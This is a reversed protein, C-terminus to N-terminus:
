PELHKLNPTTPQQSLTTPTVQARSRLCNAIKGLVRGIDSDLDRAPLLRLLSIVAASAAPRVTGGKGENDEVVTLTELLPLVDVRLTTVVVPHVLRAVVNSAWAEGEEEEMADEADEDWEHFNELVTAAARIHLTKSGEVNGGGRSWRSGGAKRLMWLLLDRYSGWPLATALSGIAAAATSAVDAGADGLSAVALPALFGNITVPPIDNREAAAALRRLARCRRHAQLHAMNGFFDHEPDKADALSAAGPAAAPWTLALRRFIALAESRTTSEPSRLLGRVGPALVGMVAGALSAEAAAAAAAARSAASTMVVVANANAEAEDGGAVEAEDEGDGDDDDDDDVDGVSAGGAKAKTNKNSSSKSEAVAADLFRELAAAAAHRLAMDSGRLEHIVHHLIPVAAASPMAKFWAVDLNEYASLRRDYDVGEISDRADAHLDALVPAVAAAAADHVALAKIAAVLARRAHRQRLRGFLPALASRHRNAAAAAAAAEEEDLRANAPPIVSSLANLVESVASEDLRRIALVPVLTDAIAGSAAAKGLLPGLRKLVALERGAAGVSAGASGHRGGSAAAANSGPVQAHRGRAARAALAAQLAELLAPAHDRLLTVSVHEGEAEEEEAGQKQKDMAEAEKDKRSSKSRGKKGGGKAAKEEAEAAEASAVLALQERANMARDAEFRATEAQEILSEAVALAAARTAPSACPAGLARWAESLLGNAAGGGGSTTLLPALRDDDALAAVVALAPPPTAAGAEAAMRAAMPALARLVLPWYGSYDFGPHRAFLAGLFRVALVRVERAERISAGGAGGGGSVLPTGRSKGERQAGHGKTDGDDDDDDGEEEAELVETDNVIHEGDVDMGDGDGGGHGGAAVVRAAAAAECLDSSAELLVLALALLSDLYVKTHEGMARLLDGAARLFGAPRKSGSGVLAGVEAARAMGLWMAGASPDGSASLVLADMWPTRVVPILGPSPTSCTVLALPELPGIVSHILPVIESPDLRGIWALAAARLPAYKGSRKKLRPVLCRVVLAAFAARHEPLTAAAASTDTMSGDSGGDQRM